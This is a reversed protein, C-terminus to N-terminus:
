LGLFFTNFYLGKLRIVKAKLVSIFSPNQIHESSLTM